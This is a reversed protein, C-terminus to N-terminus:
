NMFIGGYKVPNQVLLKKTLVIRELVMSQMSQVDGQTLIEARQSADIGLHQIFRVLGVNELNSTSLKSSKMVFLLEEKAKECESGLPWEAWNEIPECMGSPYPHEEPFEEFQTLRYLGTAAVVVERSGDDKKDKVTVLRMIAGIGLLQGNNSFPIGFEEVQMGELEDFLFQYRKEFVHLGMMEGPFPLVPLPFQAFRMLCSYQKEAVQASVDTM